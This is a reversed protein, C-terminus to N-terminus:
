PTAFPSASLVGVVSGVPPLPAGLATTVGSVATGATAVISVALDIVPSVPDAPTVTPIPTPRPLAPPPTQPLVPPTPAAPGTPGVGGARLPVTPGPAGAPVIAEVVGAGAPGNGNPTAVTLAAAPPTAGAAGDTAPPVTPTTGGPAPHDSGGPSRGLAAPDGPRHPRGTGAVLAVAILVAAAVGGVAGTVRHRRRHTTSGHDAARTGPTPGFPDVRGLPGFPHGSDRAAPAATQVQGFERSLFVEELSVVTQARYQESM